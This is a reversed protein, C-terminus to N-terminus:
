GGSPRPVDFTSPWQGNEYRRGGHLPEYSGPRGDVESPREPRWIVERADELGTYDNTGFTFLEETPDHGTAEWGGRRSGEQVVNREVNLPHLNPGSMQILTGALGLYGWNLGCSQCADGENGAARWVRSADSESHDVPNALHSPGFAHQWQQQDYLRGVLDYDLLGLGPMLWEPYYNQNTAEQTAFRPAIPDCMCVVTTVGADILGATTATSQQQATEINSEYSFIPPTQGGDCESVQQQVTEATAINTETKPVVIGLKRRVQGRAGIEPHVVPGSHSVEEGALKKCYYEAIVNASKTGGMLVDYRFPRRKTYQTRDFHWGGVSIIGERVWEDFITPYLPTDWLIMFPDKNAAERAAQRCAEPDPPTQPCDGHVHEWVVERGYFEYAQNLFKVAADNFAHTEEETQALGQSALIQNVLPNAESSFYIIKVQDETVGRYTAGGNDAGDPWKAVCPPAHYTVSHQRGDETCHSKDGPFNPPYTDAVQQSSPGSSAGDGDGDAGGAGTTGSSTAAGSGAAAGGGSTTGPETAGSATTAGGSGTSGGIGGAGPAATARPGSGGGTLAEQETPTSPAVAVLLAQVLAIALFPAYLRAVSRRM